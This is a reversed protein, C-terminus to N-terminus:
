ARDYSEGWKIRDTHSAKATKAVTTKNTQMMRGPKLRFLRAKLNRTDAIARDDKSPDKGEAKRQIRCTRQLDEWHWVGVRLTDLEAKSLRITYPRKTM